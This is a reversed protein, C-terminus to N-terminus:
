LMVSYFAYQDKFVKLDLGTKKKIYEIRYNLTNRHIYLANSAKISNGLNIFTLGTNITEKDLLNLIKDKIYRIDLRNKISYTILDSLTNYRSDTKDLYEYLRPEELGILDFYVTFSEYFDYEIAKIIDLINEHNDKNIKLTYVQDGFNLSDVFPISKIYNDIENSFRKLKIYITETM